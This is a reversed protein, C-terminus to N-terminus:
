RAAAAGGGAGVSDGFRAALLALDAGDVLGSADIGARDSYLAQRRVASDGPAPPPGRRHFFARGDGPLHHPVAAAGRTPAM